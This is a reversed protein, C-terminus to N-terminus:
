IKQMLRGICASAGLVSCIGTFIILAGYESAYASIAGPGLRVKLLGESLPGSFISAVGKSTVMLSVFFPVNVDIGHAQIANAYGVWSANYAGGSLGWLVAFVYFMAQSTGLGWFLFIAVASVFTMLALDVFVPLRDVLWGHFVTGLFASFNYLALALSGSYSPFGFTRAFSPM